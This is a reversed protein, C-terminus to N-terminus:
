AQVDTGSEVIEIKVSRITTGAGAELGLEGLQAGGRQVGPQGREVGGRGGGDQGAVAAPDHPGELHDFQGAAREGGGHGGVLLDAGGDLEAEGQGARFEVLPDGGADLGHPLRAEFGLDLVQDLLAQPVAFGGAAGEAVLLHEAVQVALEGQLLCALFRDFSGPPKSAALLGPEAAVGADVPEVGAV